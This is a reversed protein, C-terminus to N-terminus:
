FANVPKLKFIDKFFLLELLTSQGIIQNRIKFSAGFKKVHAVIVDKCLLLDNQSYIRDGLPHFVETQLESETVQIYNSPRGPCRVTRRSIEAYVASFKM